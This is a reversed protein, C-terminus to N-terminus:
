LAHAFAKLQQAARDVSFAKQRFRDSVQERSSQSNLRDFAESLHSQEDVWYECGSGTEMYGWEPNGVFPTGSAHANALKVNSKWHRAAYSDWEGGRVAIVIDLDALHNPNTVFRWGRRHCERQIVQEWQGLYISRGEYGVLTVRERIPNTKIGPRHHHPITLAPRGDSCDEMMRLTPWIVGTPNMAKIQGKVWEISQKRDWRSCEPQPYFDVVDFVWPKKTQKLGRLLDPTVRKVVVVVDAQKLQMANAKPIVEAECASGLQNGRVEWSGNGGRGTFLLNM